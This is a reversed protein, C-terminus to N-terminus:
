LLPSAYARPLILYALQVTKMPSPFYGLGRAGVADTRLLKGLSAQAYESVPVAVHCHWAVFETDRVAEWCLAASEM